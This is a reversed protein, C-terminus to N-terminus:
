LTRCLFPSAPSRKKPGFHGRLIDSRLRGWLERSAEVSTLYCDVRDEYLDALDTNPNVHDDPRTQQARDVDTGAASM